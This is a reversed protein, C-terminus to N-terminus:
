DLAFLIYRLKHDEIFCVLHRISSLIRHSSNHLVVHLIDPKAKYTVINDFDMLGDLRPAAPEFIMWQQIVLNLSTDLMDKFLFPLHSDCDLVTVLRLCRRKTTLLM